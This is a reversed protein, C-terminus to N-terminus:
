GLGLELDTSNRVFATLSINTKRDQDRTSPLPLIILHTTQGLGMHRKAQNHMGMNALPSCTLIGELQPSPGVTPILVRFVGRRDDEDIQIM